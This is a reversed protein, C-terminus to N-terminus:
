MYYEYVCHFHIPSKVGGVGGLHTRVLHFAGLCYESAQCTSDGGGGGGEGCDLAGVHSGTGGTVTNNGARPGM